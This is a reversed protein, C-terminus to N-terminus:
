MARASGDRMERAASRWARAQGACGDRFRFDIRPIAWRTDRACRLAFSHAASGPGELFTRAVTGSWRHVAGCSRRAAGCGLCALPMIGCQDDHAPKVRADM